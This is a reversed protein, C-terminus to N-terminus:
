CGSCQGAPLPFDEPCTMLNPCARLRVIVPSKSTEYFGFPGSLPILNAHPGEVQCETPGSGHRSAMAAMSHSQRQIVAAGGCM